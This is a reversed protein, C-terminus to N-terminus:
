SPRAQNLKCGPTTKEGRKRERWRGSDRGKRNRWIEARKAGGFRQGKRKESKSERKTGLSM